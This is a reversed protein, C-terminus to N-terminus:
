HSPLICVARLDDDTFEEAKAKMAMLGHEFGWVSVSYSSGDEECEGFCVNQDDQSAIFVKDLRRTSFRFEQICVGDDLDWLCGLGSKDISLLIERQYSPPRLFVAQVVEHEHKMLSIKCDTRTNWVIIMCGANYAVM